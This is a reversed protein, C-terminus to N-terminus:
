RLRVRASLAKKMCRGHGAAVAAHKTGRDIDAVAVVHAVCLRQQRIKIDHTAKITGHPVHSRPRSAPTKEL